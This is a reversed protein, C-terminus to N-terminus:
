RVNTKVIELLQQFTPLQDVTTEKVDKYLKQFSPIQEFLDIVEQMNSKLVDNFDHGLFMELLQTSTPMSVSDVFNQVYISTFLRWFQTM